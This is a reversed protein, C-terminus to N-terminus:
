VTKFMSDYDVAFNYMIEYQDFDDEALAYYNDINPIESGFMNIGGPVTNELLKDTEEKLKKIEASQYELTNTQEKALEKINKNFYYSNVQSAIKATQTALMVIQKMGITLTNTSALLAYGGMVVLAVSAIVGFIGLDIGMLSLMTLTLMTVGIILATTATMAVGAVVVVTAMTAATTAAVVYYQGTWAAVAFAVMTVWPQQYWKVEVEVETFVLLSMSREIINCLYDFRMINTIDRIIPIRIDWDKGKSHYSTTVVDDETARHDELLSTSFSYGSTTAGAVINYLIIKNYHTATVQKCYSHVYYSSYVPVKTPEGVGSEPYVTKYYSVYRVEHSQYWYSNIEKTATGGETPVQVFGLSYTQKIGAASKYKYEITVTTSTINRGYVDSSTSNSIAFFYEYLYTVNEQSKNNPLVGFVLFSSRIDPNSLSDILDGRELGIKSLVLKTETTNKVMKLNEKIPIIPYVETIVENILKPIIHVSEIAIFSNVYGTEYEWVIKRLSSDLAVELLDLQKQKYQGVISEWVMSKHRDYLGGSAYPNKFSFTLKITGDKITATQQGTITMYTPFDDFGIEASGNYSVPKTFSNAISKLDSYNIDDLTEYRLPAEFYEETYDTITEVFPQGKIVTTKKYVYKIKVTFKLSGDILSALNSISLITYSLKDNGNVYKNNLYSTITALPVREYFVAEIYNGTDVSDHFYLRTSGDLYSLTIPDYADRFQISKKIIDLETVPRISATIIKYASANINSKTYNLLRVENIGKVKIKSVPDYGLADLYGENYMSKIMIIDSQRQERVVPMGSSIKQAEGFFLSKYLGGYKEMIGVVQLNRITETSSGM